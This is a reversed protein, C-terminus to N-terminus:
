LSGTHRGFVSATTNASAMYKVETTNMTQKTNVKYFLNIKNCNYLQM